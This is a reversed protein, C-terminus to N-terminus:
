LHKEEGTILIPRVSDNVAKGGMRYSTANLLIFINPTHPSKSGLKLRPMAEERVKHGQSQVYGEGVSFFPSLIYVLCKKFQSAGGMCHTTILIALLPLLLIAAYDSKYCYSVNKLVNQPNLM